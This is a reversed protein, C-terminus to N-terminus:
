EIHPLPIAVERQADVEEETPAEGETRYDGVIMYRYYSLATAAALAVLLVCFFIRSTRDM